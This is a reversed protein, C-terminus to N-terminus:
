HNETTQNIKAGSRLKDPAKTVTTAHDSWTSTVNDKFCFASVLCRTVVKM